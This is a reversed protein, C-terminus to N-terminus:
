DATAILEDLFGRIISLAERDGVGEGSAQRRRALAAPDADVTASADEVLLRFAPGEVELLGTEDLYGLMTAALELREEAVMMNIFEIAVIASGSLNGMELLDSTYERLVIYAQRTQGRRFLTRARLVDNPSNTTPPVEIELAEDYLAQAREAEGRFEAAAGQLYLTWNLFTPPGTVRFREVLDAIVTEAEDLKGNGLLTGGNFIGFLDALHQEGRREMEAIAAASADPVSSASDVM